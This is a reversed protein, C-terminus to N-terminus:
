NALGNSGEHLFKMFVLNELLKGLDEAFRFSVANRIGTDICYVKRPNKEHDKLSYSFRRVFFFLFAQNLYESWREVTDV